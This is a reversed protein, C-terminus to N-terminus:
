AAAEDRVEAPLRHLHTLRAIDFAARVLLEREEPTDMRTAGDGALALVLQTGFDRIFGDRDSADPVSAQALHMM